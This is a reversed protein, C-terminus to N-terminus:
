LTEAILSMPYYASYMSSIIRPCIMLHASLLGFFATSQCFYVTFTVMMPFWWFIKERFDTNGKISIM